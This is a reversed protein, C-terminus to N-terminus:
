VRPPSTRGARRQRATIAGTSILTVSGTANIQNVATNGAVQLYSDTPGATVNVAGTVQLVLPATPSGIVNGQDLAAIAQTAM